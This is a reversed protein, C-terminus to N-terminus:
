RMKFFQTMKMALNLDGQLKLKGQQMTFLLGDPQKEVATVPNDPIWQAIAISATLCFLLLRKVPAEPIIHPLRALRDTWAM